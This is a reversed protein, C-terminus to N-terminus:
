YLESGLIDRQFLNDSDARTLPFYYRARPLLSGAVIVPCARDDCKDASAPKAIRALLDSLCETVPANGTDTARNPMHFFAFILILVQQFDELCFQFLVQWLSIVLRARVGFAGM